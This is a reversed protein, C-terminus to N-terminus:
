GGKVVPVQSAKVFEDVFMEDVDLEEPPHLLPSTQHRVVQRSDGQHGHKVYVASCIIYM